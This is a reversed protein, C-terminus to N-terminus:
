TPHSAGDGAHVVEHPPSDNPHRPLWANQLAHGGEDGHPHIIDPSRAAAAQAAIWEVPDARAVAAAQLRPEAQEQVVHAVLCDVVQPPVCPATSCGREGGGEVSVLTLDSGGLRLAPDVVIM